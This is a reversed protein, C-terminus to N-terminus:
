PLGLARLADSYGGPLHEQTVISSGPDPVLTPVSNKAAQRLVTVLLNVTEDPRQSNIGEVAIQHQLRAQRDFVLINAKDKAFGYAVAFRGKWDLIIPSANGGPFRRRVVGRLFFPVGRVDAVHVIRLSEMDVLGTMSDRIAKEWVADFKSGKQDSGILLVVDGRWDDDRHINKFQDNLEFEILVSGAAQGVVCVLLVWLLRNISGRM